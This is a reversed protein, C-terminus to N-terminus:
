DLYSVPFCGKLTEAKTKEFAEIAEAALTSSPVGAGRANGFEKLDLAVCTQSPTVWIDLFLDTVFYRGDRKRMPTVIDCYYGIIGGEDKIFELIDFHETFFCYKMVSNVGFRFEIRWM